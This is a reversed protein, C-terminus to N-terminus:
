QLLALLEEDAHAPQSMRQIVDFNNLADVSPLPQSGAILAVNRAFAARQSTLEYHHFTLGAFLVAVATAAIRPLLRHWSWRFNWTRSRRVDEIEVAQMVRATFNSAVPADPLRALVKTLRAELELDAPVPTENNSPENKM